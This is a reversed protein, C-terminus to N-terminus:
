YSSRSGMGRLCLVGIIVAGILVPVWQHVTLHEVVRAAEYYYHYIHQM